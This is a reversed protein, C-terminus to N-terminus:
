ERVGGPLSVDVIFQDLHPGIWAEGGMSDVRERIGAIGRQGGPVGSARSVLPNTVRIRIGRAAVAEVTVGIPTGPAHKLANTLSEQVIRYAAADNAPAISDIGDIVVYANIWHGASRLDALMVGLSRMTASRDVLPIADDARLGGVVGRVDELAAHAQRRVLRAWEALAPDTTASTAQTEFAGAALAMTSLRHGLGDHLDRAIRARESQRALQADLDEARQHQEAADVRSVAADIRARRVAVVGAALGISIAAIVIVAISWSAGDARHDGAVAWPLGRGWDTTLERLVFLGIAAVGVAGIIQSHRSWRLCARVIAVLALAYSVGILMLLGGAVLVPIPSRKRGYVTVWAAVVIFFLPVGIPTLRVAPSAGVSFSVAAPVNTICYLDLLIGVIVLTTTGVARGFQSVRSPARHATTTM